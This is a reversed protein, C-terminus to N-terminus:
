TVTSNIRDGIGLSGINNSLSLPELFKREINNNNNGYVEDLLNNEM